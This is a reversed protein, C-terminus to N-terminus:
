WCQGRNFGLSGHYNDLWYFGGGGLVHSYSCVCTSTWFGTGADPSQEGRKIVMEGENDVGCTPKPADSEYIGPRIQGGSGVYAKENGANVFNAIKTGTTLNNSSSLSVAVHGPADTTQSTIEVPHLTLEGIITPQGDIYATGAFATYNTSRLIPALITSQAVVNHASALDDVSVPVPISIGADASQSTINDTRLGTSLQVADAYISTLWASTFHAGTGTVTSATVSGGPVALTAPHVMCTGADPLSGDLHGADPYVCTIAQGALTLSSHMTQTATASKHVADGDTSTSSGSGGGTLLVLAAITAGALLLTRM